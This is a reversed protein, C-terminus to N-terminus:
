AAADAETPTAMASFTMPAARHRRARHTDVGAVGGELGVAADVLLLADVGHHHRTRDRHRHGIRRGDHVAGAQRHRPGARARPGDVLDLRADGGADRVLILRM